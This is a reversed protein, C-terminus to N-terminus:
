FEALAWVYGESCGGKRPHYAPVPIPTPVPVALATMLM